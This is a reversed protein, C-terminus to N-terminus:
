EAESFAESFAGAGSSLDAAWTHPAGELDSEKEIPVFLLHLSFVTQNQDRGGQCDPKGVGSLTLRSCAKMGLRERRRWRPRAGGAEDWAM